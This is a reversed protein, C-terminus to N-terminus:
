GPEEQRLARAQGVWDERVIREPTVKIRAAIGQAEEPTWAAIQEITTVGSGRLREAIAQGIGKIGRLEDAAELPGAPEPETPGLPATVAPSPVTTGDHRRGVRRGAWGARRRPRLAMAAATAAALIAGGILMLRRIM